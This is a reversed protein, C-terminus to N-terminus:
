LLRSTAATRSRQPRQETERKYKRWEGRARLVRPIEGRRLRQRGPRIEHDSEGAADLM